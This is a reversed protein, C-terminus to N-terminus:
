DLKAKLFKVIDRMAIDEAHEDTRGKYEVTGADLGKDGM